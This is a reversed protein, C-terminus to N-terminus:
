NVDIAEVFMWVNGLWLSGAGRVPWVACAVTRLGRQLQGVGRGWEGAGSMPGVCRGCTAPQQCRQGAPASGAHVGRSTIQLKGAHISTCDRQM